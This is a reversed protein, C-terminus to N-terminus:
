IRATLGLQIMPVGESQCLKALRLCDKALFFM